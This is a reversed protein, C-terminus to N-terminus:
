YSFSRGVEGETFQDFKGQIGKKNIKNRFYLEPIKVAPLLDHQLWTLSTKCESGPYDTLVVPEFAIWSRDMGPDPMSHLRKSLAFLTQDAQFVRNLPCDESLSQDQFLAKHRLLRSIILETEVEKL